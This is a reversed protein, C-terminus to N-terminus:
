VYIWNEFNDGTKLRKAVVRRYDSMVCMAMVVVVHSRRWHMGNIAPRWDEAKREGM